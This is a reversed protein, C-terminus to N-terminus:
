YERSVKFRIAALEGIDPKPGEGATTVVYSVGSDLKVDEAFAATTPGNLLTVGAAVLSTKIFDARNVNVNMAKLATNKQEVFAPASPSFAMAVPALMLILQQQKVM